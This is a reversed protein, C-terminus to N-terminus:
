KQQLIKLLFNPDWGAAKRKTKLQGRNKQVRIQRGLVFRPLEEDHFLDIM